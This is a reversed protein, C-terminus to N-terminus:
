GDDDPAPVIFLGTIAETVTFETGSVSFDIEVLDNSLV